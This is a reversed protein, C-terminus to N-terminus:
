VWKDMSYLYRTIPLIFKVDETIDMFGELHGINIKLLTSDMNTQLAIPVRSHVTNPEKFTDLIEKNEKELVTIKNELYAIYEITPDVKSNRLKIRM